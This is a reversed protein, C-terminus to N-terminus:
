TYKLLINVLIRKLKQSVKLGEGQAIRMGIFFIYSLLISM